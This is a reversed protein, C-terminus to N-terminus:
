INPVWAYHISKVIDIFTRVLLHVPGFIFFFTVVVIKEGPDIRSGLKIKLIRLYAFPIAILNYALALSIFCISVILFEIGKWM